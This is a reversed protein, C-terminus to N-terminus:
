LGAVNHRAQIPTRLVWTYTTLSAEHPNKGALADRQIDGHISETRSKPYHFNLCLEGLFSCVSLCVDTESKNPSV